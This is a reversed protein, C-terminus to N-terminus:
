RKIIMISFYPFSRSLIMPTDSTYFEKEPLGVNEFYHYTADNITRMAEKIADEHLSLKMIVVTGGENLINAIRDATINSPIVNLIEDQRVIHLKALAGCAIFAPVGAIRGTDIGLDSLYDSIYHASSYFGCDGEAVFAVEQGEKYASCIREAVAIYATEAASRDKSMPVHFLEVKQRNIGLDMMIDLSRSLVKGKTITGPCYIIDVSQLTRLAKLTILEPNGPGLSVCIPLATSM